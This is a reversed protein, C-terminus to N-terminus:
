LGPPTLHSQTCEPTLIMLSLNFNDNMTHEFIWEDVQADDPLWSESLIIESIKLVQIDRM